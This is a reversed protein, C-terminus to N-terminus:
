FRRSTMAILLQFTMLSPARNRPKLALLTDTKFNDWNIGCQQLAGASMTPTLSLIAAGRHSQMKGCPLAFWLGAKAM